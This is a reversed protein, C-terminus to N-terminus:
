KRKLIGKLPKRTDKPHLRTNKSSAHADAHDNEEQVSEAKQRRTWQLSKRRAKKAAYRKQGSILPNACSIYLGHADCAVFQGCLSCLSSTGDAIARPHHEVVPRSSVSKIANKSSSLVDYGRAPTPSMPSIPLPSTPPTAEAAQVSRLPSPTHSGYKVSSSRPPSSHPVVRATIDALPVRRQATYTGGAAVVRTQCDSPIAVAVAEPPQFSDNLSCIQRTLLLETCPPAPQLSAAELEEAFAGSFICGPNVKATQHVVDPDQAVMASDDQEVSAANQDVPARSDPGYKGCVEATRSRKALSTVEDEGLMAVADVLKRKKSLTREENEKEFSAENLNAARKRRLMKRQRSKKLRCERCFSSGDAVLRTGSHALNRNNLVKAREINCLRVLSKESPRKCNATACPWPVLDTQCAADAARPTRLAPDDISTCAKAHMRERTQEHRIVDVRRQLASGSQAVATTEPAQLDGAKLMLAEHRSAAVTAARCENQQKDKGSEAAGSGEIECNGGTLQTKRNPELVAAMGNESRVKNRCNREQSCAVSNRTVLARKIPGPKDPAPALFVLSSIGTRLRTDLQTVSFPIQDPRLREDEIVIEVNSGSPRGQGSSHVSLPKGEPITTTAMVKRLPKSIDRSRSQTTGGASKTAREPGVLDAKGWGPAEERREQNLEEWDPMKGKMKRAEEGLESLLEKGRFKSVRVRRGIDELPQLNKTCKGGAARTPTIAENNDDDDDLALSEPSSSEVEYQTRKPTLRIAWVQIPDQLVYSLPDYPSYRDRHLSTLPSHTQQIGLPPPYPQDPLESPKKNNKRLPSPTSDCLDEEKQFLPSSARSADPTPYPCFSSYQQPPQLPEIDSNPDPSSPVSTHHIVAEEAESMASRSQPEFSQIDEIISMFAEYQPKSTSVADQQTGDQEDM